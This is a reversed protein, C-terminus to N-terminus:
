DVESADAFDSLYQKLTGSPMHFEAQSAKLPSDDVELESHMAFHSRGIASPKSLSEDIAFLVIAALFAANFFGRMRENMWPFRKKPNRNASLRRKLMKWMRADV